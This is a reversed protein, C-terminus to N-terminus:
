EPAPGPDNTRARLIAQDNIDTPAFLEFPTGFITRNPLDLVDFAEAQRQIDNWHNESIELSDLQPHDAIYQRIIELQTSMKSEEHMQVSSQM